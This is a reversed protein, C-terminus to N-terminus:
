FEYVVGLPISVSAFSNTADTVGREGDGEFTRRQNESMLGISATITQSLSYNLFIGALLHLGNKYYGTEKGYEQMYLPATILAHANVSFTKGIQYVWRTFLSPGVSLNKTLLKNNNSFSDTTENQITAGPGVHFINNGATIKWNYSTNFFLRSTQVTQGGINAPEKFQSQQYMLRFDLQNQFERLENSLGLLIGSSRSNETSYNQGEGKQDFSITAPLYYSSFTHEKKFLNNTTAKSNKVSTNTRPELEELEDSLAQAQGPIFHILLAIIFFPHKKM